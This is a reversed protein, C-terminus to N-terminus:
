PIGQCPLLNPRVLYLCSIILMDKGCSQLKDVMNRSYVDSRDTPDSGNTFVINDARRVLASSVSAAFSDLRQFM